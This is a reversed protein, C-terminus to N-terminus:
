VHDRVEVSNNPKSPTKPASPMRYVRVIVEQEEEHFESDYSESQQNGEPEMEEVLDPKTLAAGTLLSTIIDSDKNWHDDHHEDHLQEVITKGDLEDRLPEEDSCAENEAKLVQSM